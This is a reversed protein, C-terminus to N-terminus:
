RILLSTGKQFFKKGTDRDTYRLFWVYTGSPQPHGNITGDWKQLWDNSSFVLQGYRSFVKFELNDAKYANLPYLYDNLGDGNPSFATPVAIYCSRLVDIQHVATDRCGLSNEVILRVNYKTEIGTFPYLHDPPSQTLDGVGDGLDWNWGTIKGTSNNKYIAADQPCLINPVEFAANIANDLLISTSTTDSCFGNSVILQVPQADFVTYIRRPNQTLSTDGPAFVWTWHDVGNISPYFFDITDRVCGYLIQDTFAKASVTDKTTFDITSGVPTPLGCEDVITNGDVGPALTVTYTGANVIPGSLQLRIIDTEGNADCVGSAGTVVVSVPGTIKFDSGDASISSCQMKKRFVFQLSAPACTPPTLSDFPTPKPAKLEFPLSAHIPIQTGCNDLLTNGDTGQEAVVTYNGIPLPGSMTLILTDMDFGISCSNGVIGTVRAVAPSISFDSGHTELSSCKMKKNLVVRIHSGDCIPDVSQLAPQLPDTISATGGAFSLSYGSQSNTFHSVLLLYQHGAILAPMANMNSYAPGACNISLAGASSTGTGDPNSSWNGSVFLNANTYVDDPAHGTVDFIQWDYDDSSTIPTILFGLTGSTYCTFKYWFPNKDTYAAGDSCALPINHNNCVPVNAQQFVLTGCVPFATAPTQGLVTCPPGLPAIQAQSLITLMLGTALLHLKRILM